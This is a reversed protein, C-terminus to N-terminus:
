FGKEVLSEDVRVRVTLVVFEDARTKIDDVVDVVLGSRIHTPSTSTSAGPTGRRGKGWRLLTIWIGIDGKGGFSDLNIGELFAVMIIISDLNDAVEERSNDGIFWGVMNLSLQLEIIYFGSEVILSM